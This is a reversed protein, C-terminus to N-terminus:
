PAARSLAHLRTAHLAPAAHLALFSFLEEDFASFGTKHPLLGAVEVVGVTKGELRLPIAAAPVSEDGDPRLYPEGSRLAAAAIPSPEAAPHGDPLIATVLRAAGAEMEFIAFHESGILNVLVENLAEVVQARDLSGHLFSAAVYLKALNGKEEELRVNRESLARSGAQAAAMERRASILEAQYRDLRGRLVSVQEALRRNAERLEDPGAPPVAGRGPLELTM